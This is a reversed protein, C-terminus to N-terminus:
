HRHFIFIDTTEQYSQAAGESLCGFLYRHGDQLKSEMEETPIQLVIQPSPTKQTAELPIIERAPGTLDIAFLKFNKYYPPSALTIEYFLGREELPTIFSFDRRPIERQPSILGKGSDITHVRMNYHPSYIDIWYPFPFSPDLYIEIKCLALETNDDPWRSNYVDFKPTSIKKSEVIKPPVWLSRHDVEGPPPPPGIRKKEEETCPTFNLGLLSTLFHNETIQIWGKKSFSYSELLTNEKLDIEYTIWSTHSPAYSQVWEKWSTIKKGQDYPVTIEEFLAVDNKLSRLLLLSLHSGQKTVSYDGPAGRLLQNKLSLSSEQGILCVTSFFLIYFLYKM